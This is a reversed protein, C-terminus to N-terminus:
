DTKNVNTQFGTILYKLYQFDINEQRTNKTKYSM